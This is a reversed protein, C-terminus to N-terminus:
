NVCNNENLVWESKHCDDFYDFVRAGLKLPISNFQRVSHSRNRKPHHLNKTHTLHANAITNETNKERVLFSIHAKKVLRQKLNLLQWRLHFRTVQAPYGSQMHWVASHSCQISFQAVSKSCHTVQQRNARLKSPHHTKSHIDRNKLLM